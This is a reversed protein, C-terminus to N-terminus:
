SRSVTYSLLDFTATQWAERPSRNSLTGPTTLLNGGTDRLRIYLYDASIYETSQMFWAFTLNAQLADGPISIPQWLMDYALDYGGLYAGYHGSAFWTGDALPYEDASAVAWYRPKGNEFEEFGGNWVENYCNGGYNNLAIPLFVKYPYSPPQLTIEVGESASIRAYGTFTEWTEFVATVPLSRTQYPALRIYRDPYSHSPNPPAGLWWRNFTHNANYLAVDAALTYGTPNHLVITPGAGSAVRIGPLLHFVPKPTWEPPHWDENAPPQPDGWIGRPIWPIRTPRWLWHWGPPTSPPHAAEPNTMWGWVLEEYTYSQGPNGQTGDYFPRDPYFNLGSRNPNNSLLWKNYATVAYYWDESVTHDNAGILRVPTPSSLYNWKDILLYTGTGVDYALEGAVRSPVFGAGGGMGTHIQMLGYDCNYVYTCFSANDPDTGKNDAFQKWNSEQWGMARLVPHPMPRSTSVSEYTIGSGGYAPPLGRAIQMYTPADSGLTNCAADNFTTRVAYRDPQYGRARAQPCETPLPQCTPTAQALPSAGVSGPNELLAGAMLLLGALTLLCLLGMTRLSVYSHNV